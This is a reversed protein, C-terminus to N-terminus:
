VQLQEVPLPGHQMEEAEDQQQPRQQEMTASM